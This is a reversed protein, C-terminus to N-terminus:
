AAKEAKALAKKIKKKVKLAEDGLKTNSTKLLFNDLGGNKDISRITNTAINLRVFRGLADSLLSISKINPEFRKKTKHNSHSVKNGVLVGKKTIDCRKAMTSGIIGLSEKCLLREKVGGGSGQCTFFAM